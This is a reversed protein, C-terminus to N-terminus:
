QVLETSIVLVSENDEWLTLVTQLLLYFAKLSLFKRSTFTFDHSVQFKCSVACFKLSVLKLQM